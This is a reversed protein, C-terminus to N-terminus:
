ISALSFNVGNKIHSGFTIRYTTERNDDTYTYTPLRDGKLKDTVNRGNHTIEIISAGDEYNAIVVFKNTNFAFTERNYFTGKLTIKMNRKCQNLEDKLGANIEIYESMKQKCQEVKNELKSCDTPIPQNDSTYVCKDYLNKWNDRESILQEKEEALKQCDDDENDNNIIEEKCEALQKKFDDREEEADEKEDELKENIVILETKETQVVKIVDECDTDKILVEIRENKIKVNNQLDLIVKDKENWDNKLIIMEDDGVKSPSKGEEYCEIKSMEYSLFPAAGVLGIGSALMLSSFLYSKRTLAKQYSKVQDLFKM